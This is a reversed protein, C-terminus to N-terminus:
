QNFIIEANPYGWDDDTKNRISDIGSVLLVGLLGGSGGSNVLNASTKNYPTVIANRIEGDKKCIINVSSSRDRKDPLNVIGPTVVKATYGPGKIECTVNKIETRSKGAPKLYTRVYIPEYGVLGSHASKDVTIVDVPVSTVPENTACAACFLFLGLVLSQKLM